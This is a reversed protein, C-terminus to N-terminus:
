VVSKRDEIAGDAGEVSVLNVNYNKVLAELIKAINTQAEYNCHADQIHILLKGNKGIYKSKVLGFDRPIVIKDPNAVIEEHKPLQSSNEAPAAFALNSIIFTNILLISTIRNFIRSNNKMKWTIMTKNM